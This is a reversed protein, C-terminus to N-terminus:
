GKLINAAIRDAAKEAEAGIAIRADAAQKELEAKGTEYNRAVEAKVESIRKTREEVAKKQEKEVFAYGESRADLMEKAYDAEKGEAKKLIGEAETSYGGKNAERAELVKNIPRYLTRNLLWIMGLIIAIHLFLSGDPFLQITEAFLLLHM